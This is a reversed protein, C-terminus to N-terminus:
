SEILRFLLEVYAWFRQNLKRDKEIKECLVLVDQAMQSVNEGSDTPVGDLILRFVARMEHNKLGTKHRQLVELAHALLIPGPAGLAISIGAYKGPDVSDLFKLFERFYHDVQQARTKFSM